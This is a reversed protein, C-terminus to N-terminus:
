CNHSSPYSVLTQLNQLKSLSFQSFIELSILRTNPLIWLQLGINIGHFAHELMFHKCDGLVDLGTHFSLDLPIHRAQWTQIFLFHECARRNVKKSRLIIGVRREETWENLRGIDTIWMLSLFAALPWPSEPFILRGIWDSAHRHHAQKATLVWTTIWWQDKQM